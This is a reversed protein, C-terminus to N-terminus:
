RINVSNGSEDKYYLAGCDDTGNLFCSLCSSLSNKESSDAVRLM